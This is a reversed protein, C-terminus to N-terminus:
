RRNVFCQGDEEGDEMGIGSTASRLSVGDIQRRPQALAAVIHMNGCRRKRRIHLRRAIDHDIGAPRRPM